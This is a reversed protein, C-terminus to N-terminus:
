LDFAFLGGFDILKDRGEKRHYPKPICITKLAFRNRWCHRTGPPNRTALCNLLLKSVAHNISESQVIIFGLLCNRRRVRVFSRPITHLYLTQLKLRYSRNRLVSNFASTQLDVRVITHCKFLLKAKSLM